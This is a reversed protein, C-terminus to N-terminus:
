RAYEVNLVGSTGGTRIARFNKLDATGWITVREGIEMPTGVTATPNTGDVRYRIQATELLLTACKAPGNGGVPDYTAATLGIAAAAVTVQEFAFTNLPDYDGRDFPSPM